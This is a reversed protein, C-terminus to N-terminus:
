GRDPEPACPNEIAGLREIEIRVVDGAKLFRMPKMAAGVGGPTGTFILDGPELTMAQSLHEIQDWLDFVLHRTSSDQRTEGNVLCRVGLAHPDPVETRDAIWPGMPAFSDCAKGAMWTLAPRRPNSTESAPLSRAPKILALQAGIPM